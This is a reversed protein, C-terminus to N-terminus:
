LHTLFVAVVQAAFNAVFVVQQHMAVACMEGTKEVPSKVYGLLYYPFTEAASSFMVQPNTHEFILKDSSRDNVSM